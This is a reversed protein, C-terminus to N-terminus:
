YQGVAVLELLDEPVKTLIRHAGHFVAARQCGSDLCQAVFPLDREDVGSRTHRRLLDFLDELRELRVELTAGPQSQCDNVLDHLRMFALDPSARLWLLPRSKNQSQMTEIGLPRNGRILGNGHLVRCAVWRAARQGHRRSSTRTALMRTQSSSREIQSISSM